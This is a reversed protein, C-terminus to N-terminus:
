AFELCNDEPLKGSDPLVVYETQSGARVQVMAGLPWHPPGPSGDKTRLIYRGDSDVMRAGCIACRQVLRGRVCVPLGALHTLTDSV